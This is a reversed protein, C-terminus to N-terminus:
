CGLSALEEASCALSRGCVRAWFRAYLKKGDYKLDNLQELVGWYCRSGSILPINLM